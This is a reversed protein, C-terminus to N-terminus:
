NLNTWPGGNISRINNETLIQNALASRSGSACCLIINNMQSLEDLRSPLEQLPINISGEPHGDEYEQETRVDVITANGSRIMDDVIQKM